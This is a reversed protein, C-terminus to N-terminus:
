KVRQRALSPKLAARAACIASKSCRQGIRTLARNSTKYIGEIIHAGHDLWHAHADNGNRLGNKGNPLAAAGFRRATMFSKPPTPAVIRPHNGRFEIPHGRIATIPCLILAHQRQLKCLLSLQKVLWQLRQSVFHLKERGTMGKMGVPPDCRGQVKGGTARTRTRTRHCAARVLTLLVASPKPMSMGCCARWSSAGTYPSNLQPAEINGLSLPQQGMLPLDISCIRAPHGM